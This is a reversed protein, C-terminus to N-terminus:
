AYCSSYLIVKRIGPSKHSANEIFQDVITTIGTNDEISLILAKTGEIAQSVFLVFSEFSLTVVLENVIHM